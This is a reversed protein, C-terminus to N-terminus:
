VIMKVVKECLPFDVGQAPILHAFISKTVGDHMVLVPIDGRQAVEAENIRSRAGLFCCDWSVVPVKSCDEVEKRGEKQHREVRGRGQACAACWERFSAHMTLVCSTPDSLSDRRRPERLEDGGVSEADSAGSQAVEDGLDVDDAARASM